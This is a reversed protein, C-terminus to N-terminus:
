HGVHAFEAVIDADVPAMIAGVADIRVGQAPM